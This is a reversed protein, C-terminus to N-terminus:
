TSGKWYIFIKLMNEILGTITASHSNNIIQHIGL